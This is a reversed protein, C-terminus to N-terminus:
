DEDAGEVGAPASAALRERIVAVALARVAEAVAPLPREASALLAANLYVPPEVPTATLDGYGPVDSLDGKPLLAGGLGAQVASLVSSLVDAEAAVRPTLGAAAFLRDVPDRTVNPPTALVLPM